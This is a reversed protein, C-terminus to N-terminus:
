AAKKWRDRGRELNLTFRARGREIMDATNDKHTGLKLHEPNACSPNDCSHRIIKGEPIPGIFEIYSVRHVLQNKMGKYCIFGYLLNNKARLWNWCGTIPDISINDRIKAQYDGKYRNYDSMQYSRQYQDVEKNLLDLFWSSRLSNNTSYFLSCMDL